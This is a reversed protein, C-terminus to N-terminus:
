NINKSGLSLLRGALLKRAFECYIAFFRNELYLFASPVKIGRLIPLSSYSNRIRLHIPKYSPNKSKLETSRGSSEVPQKEFREKEHTLFNRCFSLLFTCFQRSDSSCRLFYLMGLVTNESRASM